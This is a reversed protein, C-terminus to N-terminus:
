ESLFRREVTSLASVQLWPMMLERSCVNPVNKQFIPRLQPLSSFMLPGVCEFMQGTTAYYKTDKKNLKDALLETTTVINVDTYYDCIVPKEADM